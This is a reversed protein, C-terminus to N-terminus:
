WDAGGSGFGAMLVVGEGNGSSWDVDRGRDRVQLWTVMAIFVCVDIGGLDCDCDAISTLSRLCTITPIQSRAHKWKARTAMVLKWATKALVIADQTSKAMTVM